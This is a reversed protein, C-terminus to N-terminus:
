LVNSNKVFKQVDQLWKMYLRQDKDISMVEIFATTQQDIGMDLMYSSLGKQISEDLSVFDPGTYYEEDRLHDPIKRVKEMDNTFM